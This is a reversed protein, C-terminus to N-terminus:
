KKEYNIVRNRITTTLLKSLIVKDDDEVIFTKPLDYNLIVIKKQKQINNIYDRTRKKVTTKDLDFIGIINDTNIVKNEELLLYM